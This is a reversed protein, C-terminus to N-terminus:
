MKLAFVIAALELDHTPEHTKFQRSGYSVVRGEQMLVYGLGNLSADCYMAYGVGRKPIVLIPALTLRVKLLQFAQEFEDCWM